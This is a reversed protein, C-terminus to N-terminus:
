LIDWLRNLWGLASPDKAVVRITQHCTYSCGSIKIPVLSNSEIFYNPLYGLAMGKQLVEEMLKLGCVKYKIQRPFRDDRWGDISTSKAVRGLIASDPSVFPYKLIEEIPIAHKSNFQKFIPHNKSACTQFEVKQLVKTALDSPSDFTTLALHAEGERVQDIARSESQIAFHVKSHPYLRNIKELLTIGFATQLIEESSITINLIDSEKGLLEFRVDEELQVIQAARKKLAKGEPTLRIGRGTRFFLSTQLETELRDVAKSLSGASVHIEKAARNVNEYKAVALFYKLEFIEMISITLSNENRYCSSRWGHFKIEGNLRLISGKDRDVTQVATLVQLCRQSYAGLVMM